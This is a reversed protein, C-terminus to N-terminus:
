GRVAPLRMRVTVGQRPGSHLELTGGLRSLVTRALFLGLGMGQGPEKTTFFPDGARLLVDPPMGPGQDEVVLVVAERDTEVVVRLEVALEPQSADLANQVVGRVAQALGTLPVVLRYEEAEDGADVRVRQRQRLGALIEEVLELPSVSRLDEGATQGADAAMRDLIARCRDVEGRILRVDETVADDGRGVVLRELEKAVVAITSLPSALEHAAGAALTALAELKEGRARQQDSWRLQIERRRLEATVRTIFYVIFTACAGLATLLGWRSLPVASSAPATLAAPEFVEMRVHFYQLGLLCCMALATLGWAWTLPLVVAALSLNVLYFVTFPNAPGGSAYLLLTLLVLDLALVSGLLRSGRDGTRDAIPRHAAHRLWLDLLLNTVATTGITALLPVMPLDIRLGLAVVGVTILQGVVAAWRLKVLWSANVAVREPSFDRPGDGSDASRATPVLVPELSDHATVAM